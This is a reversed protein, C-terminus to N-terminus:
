PTGLGDPQLISQPKYGQTKGIRGFDPTLALSPVYSTGQTNSVDGRHVASLLSKSQYSGLMRSMWDPDHSINAMGRIMEPEFPPPDSHAMVKSLGYKALEKTMSPRIPTGITYHLVPRELYKGVAGALPLEQSGERPQWSSEIASYPVVDDPVWDGMEQNMRVHNILGRSILEINRRDGSTKADRLANRFASVFYRRGEGVGKHRVIEAPNPIGESIVDGAEVVDGRKILLPFGPSVYHQQGEITVYQGGQPAPDIATVRGDMQSHAAGGKFHKPAQVLQNIYKFGSIAGASAGAIGGSHKSSIQSQTVPAALAQAAAIGVFDGIPARYGRDRVGVDRGYVGGDSPGGVTPSRVLISDIGQSKLDKLIKASLLTNRDYGGAPHSLYAGASDLDDTDVPLGRPQSSDYVSEDDDDDTVLLRHASQSLQKAFFGADATAFKLDIVGKRAGYAGAFYEAPSLGQSYNRLVPMPILDGRHNTYLLDAGILSNLNVPNGRAGSLVQLALPNQTAKAEKYVQDALTGQVRGTELLIQEKKKADPLSSSLIQHLSKELQFRAAKAAPM